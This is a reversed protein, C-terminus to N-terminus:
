ENSFQEFFQLTTTFETKFKEVDAQNNYAFFSVRISSTVGLELHLPRACHDGARVMVGRQGLTWAIDHVHVGEVAFSVMHGHAAIFEPNGLIKVQTFQQLFHILDKCLAAEQVCFNIGPAFLHQALFDIALGLGVIQAVPLTGAELRHPLDLFKVTKGDFTQLNGGGLRLPWLWEASSKKVLLVGVGTPGAIKHASFVLFDAGIKELDIKCHAVAQSADLLVLAGAQHALKVLKSLELFGLEWVPGVVNSDMTVTLIKTEKDLFPEFDAARFFGRAPFPVALIKGYFDGALQLWPAFNSHHEATSLVVKKGWDAPNSIISKAVLNIGDTASATFIAIFEQQANFFETIKARITAVKLTAMEAQPYVSRNVPFNAQLYFDEIGKIVANPKQATAASDLYVQGQKELGKILSFLERCGVNNSTKSM